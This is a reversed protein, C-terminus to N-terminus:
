NYPLNLECIEVPSYQLIESKGYKVPISNIKPGSLKIVRTNDASVSHIFKGGSSNPNADNFRFELPRNGNFGYACKGFQADLGMYGQPDRTITKIQGLPKGVPGEFLHCELTHDPTGHLFLAHLLLIFLIPINSKM